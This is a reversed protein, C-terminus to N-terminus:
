ATGEPKDPAIDVKVGEKAAVLQILPVIYKKLLYYFAFVLFTFFWWEASLKGQWLAVCAFVFGVWAHNAFTDLSDVINSLSLAKGISACINKFM